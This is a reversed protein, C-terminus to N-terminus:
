NVLRCGEPCIMSDDSGKIVESVGSKQPRTSKIQGYLNHSNGVAAAMKYYNPKFDTCPIRDTVTVFPYSKGTTASSARVWAVCISVILLGCRLPFVNSNYECSM